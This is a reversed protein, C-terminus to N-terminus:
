GSAEAVVYRRGSRVVAGSARLDRLARNVTERSAGVMSALFDQSLPLDLMTGHAAPIGWRGILSRLVGLIREHVGLSLAWGLHLELDALRHSLSQAMWCALAPDHRVALELEHPPFLLVAGSTIARAEPRAVPRRPERDAGLRISEEGLIDGPGLVGVIARRGGRGTIALALAGTQVVALSGLDWGEPILVEGARLRRCRLGPLGVPVHGNDIPATVRGADHPLPIAHSHGDL